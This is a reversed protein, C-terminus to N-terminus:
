KLYNNLIYTKIEPIDLVNRDFENPILIASSARDPVYTGSM